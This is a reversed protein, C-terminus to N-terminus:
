PQSLGSVGVSMGLQKDPDFRVALPAVGPKTGAEIEIHTTGGEFKAPGTVVRAPIISGDALLVTWGNDPFSRSGEGLTVDLTFRQNTGNMSTGAIGIGVAADGGDSHARNLLLGTAVLAVILVGAGATILVILWRPLSVRIEIGPLTPWRRPIQTM